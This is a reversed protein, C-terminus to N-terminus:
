LPEWILEVVAFNGDLKREKAAELTYYLSGYAIKQQKFLYKPIISFWGKIIDQFNYEFYLREESLPLTEVIWFNEPHDKDIIKFTRPIDADYEITKLAKKPPM